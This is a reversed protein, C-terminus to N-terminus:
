ISDPLFKIHKHTVNGMHVMVRAQPVITRAQAVTITFVAAAELSRDAIELPQIVFVEATIVQRVVCTGDPSISVSTTSPKTSLSSSTSTSVLTSSSTRAETTTKSTTITMESSTQGTPAISTRVLATSLSTQSAIPSGLPISTNFPQTPLPQSLDLLCVRDYEALWATDDLMESTLREELSVNYYAMAQTCLTYNSTLKVATSNYIATTTPYTATTPLLWTMNGKSTATANLNITSALTTYASRTTSPYGTYAQINGIAEVCYSNGEWLDSCDGGLQPNLFYFDQSSIGFTTTVTDCTDGNQITYWYGCDTNSTTVADTPVAVASSAAKLPFSTPVLVSGPPSLCIYEGSLSALNSCQSNISPNWAQFVPLSVQRSLSSLITDCTDNSQVLYIDCVGPLCLEQNSRLYHCGTGLANIDALMSTSVNAAISVTICTDNAKTIYTKTGSNSLDCRLNVATTEAGTTSASSTPIVATAVSVAESITFVSLFLTLLPPVAAGPVNRNMRTYTENRPAM